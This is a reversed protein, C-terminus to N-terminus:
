EEMIENFDITFVNNDTALEHIDKKNEYNEVSILIIILVIESVKFVPTIINKIFKPMRKSTQLDAEIFGSTEDDLLLSLPISHYIDNVFHKVNDEQGVLLMLNENDEIYKPPIVICASGDSKSMQCIEEIKSYEGKLVIFDFKKTIKNEKIKIHERKIIQVTNKSAIAIYAIDNILIDNGTIVCWIPGASQGSPMKAAQRLM